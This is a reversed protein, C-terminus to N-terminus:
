SCRLLGLLVAFNEAKSRPYAAFNWLLNMNPHAALALNRGWLKAFPVDPKEGAVPVKPDVKAELLAKVCDISGATIAVHLANCGRCMTIVYDNPWHVYPDAKHGLLIRVVSSSDMWCAELLANSGSRTQVAAKMAILAAAANPSDALGCLALATLGDVEEAAVDAKAEVLARVAWINDEYAAYHLATMGTEAPGLDPLEYKRLFGTVTQPSVPAESSGALIIRAQALVKRWTVLDGSKKLRRCANGHVTLLLESVAVKDCTMGEPHGRQCCTFVGNCVALRPNQVTQIYSTQMDALHSASGDDKTCLLCSSLVGTFEQSRQAKEIVHLRLNYGMRYDKLVFAMLEM